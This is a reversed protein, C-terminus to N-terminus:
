QRTAESTYYDIHRKYVSIIKVIFVWGSFLMAQESITSFCNLKGVVIYFKMIKQAGFRSTPPDTPHLELRKWPM